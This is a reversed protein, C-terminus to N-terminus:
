SIRYRRPWKPQACTPMYTIFYYLFSKINFSSKLDSILYKKAEIIKKEGMLHKAILRKSSSLHKEIILQMKKSGYINAYEKARKMAEVRGTYSKILDNSISAGHNRYGGLPVNLRAAPGHVALSYYMYVDDAGLVSPLPNKGLRDIYKRKFLTYSPIVGYGRVYRKMFEISEILESKEKLYAKNVMNESKYKNTFNMFKTFYFIADKYINIMERQTEIYSPDWIDDADLLAIYDGQSIELLRNRAQAVGKNDQEEVRVRDNYKKLINKTNDISGDNLVIIEYPKFTQYLVSDLTQEITHEANFAPILVSIKM